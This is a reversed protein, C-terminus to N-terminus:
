SADDDSTEVELERKDVYRINVVGLLRGPQFNTMHIQRQEEPGEGVGLARGREAYFAATIVGLSDSFRKRHAVSESLNVFRFRRTTADSLGLQLEKGLFTWGDIVSTQSKAPRRREKALLMADQDSLKGRTATVELQQVLSFDKERRLVWYKAKGLRDRKQGISNLGDILLAMAVDQGSRNTVRVEFYEGPKAAVCLEPLRGERGPNALFEKKHRPTSSTISRADDAEISWIEVDFPFDARQLPHSEASEMASTIVPSAYPNGGPRDRNDFSVGLDGLLDESLPLVSTPSALRQGDVVRILELSLDIRGGRRRLTGWVLADFGESKNGLSKLSIPNGLDELTFDQSAVAKNITPSDVVTYFDDSITHLGVRIRDACFAPLNARALALDNGQPMAFELVGVRKLGYQRISLDVQEALRRCATEPPEPLLSMVEPVGETQLSVLRVPTQRQPFEKPHALRTRLTNDYTFQYAEDISIVGNGDRDAGGELGRCLWYTFLGQKRQQWEHSVEKRKCSALIVCGPIDDPNVSEAFSEGDIPAEASSIGAAHCSDLVLFKTGARCKALSQHLYDISIGTEQPRSLDFDSPVLYTTGDVMVGHGAFFLIIRDAEGLDPNGLFRHIERLLNDKRPKLASKAATDTMELIQHSPAGGREVLTRRLLAADRLTYKLDYEPNDHKQVAILLGWQRSTDTRSAATAPLSNCLILLLAPLFRRLGFPM